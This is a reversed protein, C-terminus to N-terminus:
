SKIEEHSCLYIIDGEDGINKHYEEHIHFKLEKVRDHLDLLNNKKFFKCMDEKVEKEIESQSMTIIQKNPIYKQFGWFLPASIQVITM